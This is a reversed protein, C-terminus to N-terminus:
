PCAGRFARAQGAASVSICRAATGTTEPLTLEFDAAADAAGRSDFQIGTSDTDIVPNGDLAEWIRIHEGIVSGDDFFVTWGNVWDGNGGCAPPNISAPDDVPCITVTEGRKTAESRALLIGAMLSNVQTTARNNAAIGTFLPMGVAVLIIAVALTVMLEILTLGTQKSKM